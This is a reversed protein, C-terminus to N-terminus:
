DDNVAFLGTLLLSVAGNADRDEEANPFGDFGDIASVTSDGDIPSDLTALAASGFPAECSKVPLSRISGCDEVSPLEDAFEVRGVERDGASGLLEALENAVRGVPRSPTDSSPCGVRSVEVSGCIEEM